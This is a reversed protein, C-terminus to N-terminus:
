EYIDIFKCRNVYRIGKQPYTVSRKRDVYWIEDKCFHARGDELFEGNIHEDAGKLKGNQNKSCKRRTKVFRACTGDKKIDSPTIDQVVEKSSVTPDEKFEFSTSDSSGTQAFAPLQPSNLVFFILFIKSIVCINKM